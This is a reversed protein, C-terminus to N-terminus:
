ENEGDNKTTKKKFNKQKRAYIEETKGGHKKTKETM